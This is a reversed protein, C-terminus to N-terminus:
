EVKGTGYNYRFKLNKNLKRTLILLRVGPLIISANELCELWIVISSSACAAVFSTIFTPIRWLVMLSTIKYQENFLAAKKSM